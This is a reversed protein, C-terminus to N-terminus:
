VVRLSRDCAMTGPADIQQKTRQRASLSEGLLKRVPQSGIVRQESQQNKPTSTKVLDTASEVLANAAIDGKAAEVAVHHAGLHGPAPRKYELVWWPVAKADAATDGAAEASAHTPQAERTESGDECSDTGETTCEADIKLAAPLKRSVLGRRRARKPGSADPVADAGTEPSTSSSESPPASIKTASRSDVEAASKDAVADESEAANASDMRAAQLKWCSRARAIVRLRHHQLSSDQAHRAVCTSSCSDDDHRRARGSSGREKETFIM